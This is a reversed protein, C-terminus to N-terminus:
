HPLHLRALPTPVPADASLVHGGDSRHRWFHAKPSVTLNLGNYNSNIAEEARFWNEAPTGTPGGREQWYEARRELEARLDEDSM